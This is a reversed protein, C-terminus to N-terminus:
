RAHLAHRKPEAIKREKRQAPTMQHRVFLAIASKKLAIEHGSTLEAVQTIARENESPHKALARDIAALIEDPGAHIRDSRGPWKKFSFM